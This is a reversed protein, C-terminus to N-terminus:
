RGIEDSAPRAVDATPAHSKTGDPRRAKVRM